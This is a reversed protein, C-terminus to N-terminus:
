EVQFDLDEDESENVDSEVEDGSSKELEENRASRSAFFPLSEHLSRAQCIYGMPTHMIEQGKRRFTLWESLFDIPNKTFISADGACNLPSSSTTEHALQLYDSLPPYETFNIYLRGAFIGVEISLWEPTKCGHPLSPLVYYSLGNFHQMSKTIPAAYAILHVMPKKATRIMPILLEVEESIVVLATENSPSWLIWEVPRLFNDNARHSDLEITRMFEVSVYLKSKTRRVDYKQGIDTRALADFIHECGCGLILNGTRVFLLIDPHLGPFTLAEYHTPKQVQRVQEIQFEVEREQEVEELVSSHIYSRTNGATRKQRDLEKMFEALKASAMDTVYSPQIDTLSGYLKELTQHELNQIEQLYADRHTNNTFIDAYKWQADTRRCFDTGQALYLNQLHQNTRCTQELLWWVVHSSDVRLSQALNAYQKACVDLISQHVEPPAFFTISQTTGLQRLRMAAQVMHDKTQGLGLTLAGHAQHPLKLDVGRTHAEDIYVLCDELNEAYPTALLPVADKGRRYQVWARNDNGFYVAAKPKPDIKLWKEVLTKNDMELIYAGADILVKIGSYTIRELLEEEKLRRGNWSALNYQRNRSQLIYILVEANTQCLSPLDDQKISLPLMMKNDNTGSFGTTKACWTTEEPLPKPFLPIDWGSAQLKLSFQKAHNPFVFTNMYHDLVNRNLRLHRWLENLQGRDEINIVNWHSLSEPLSHSSSIWRDYEAAPDDSKLVHELSQQFQSLNLGTYYFALCTFLISVDPHGFEAQESPVGKADFPVAIPDRNPHLGYQVNWRKKLCLLLIRNLLLGRVLLINKRASSRDKFLASLKEILEDDIDHDSLVQRILIKGVAISSDTLRLFPIRGNCIDNIIRHHLADEVDERLLHLIPFGATRETVEISQPFDRQLCPFHDEVLSLLYQAVEWRNPHGDVSIQAGSPYILQTKVALTFDSEDLIDRCTSILWSQFKIMDRAEDFRHDALRQLGSLKYSLIHEPTTLIVGSLHLMDYHHTSYLQLMDLNTSTRRSFPVYRVERGVLSGLRSQITQATQLLLAKPVVLRSLQKKDALIAIAMPVICSTKGQGMNMQLVSNSRSEPSMIAHAVDIQERRILIDSDIELLLWDPFQSPSWNEHGYEQSEQHLKQRDDKLQAHIIRLLRQLSTILVGYTIINERMHSGFHSDSSSRLQELITIPTVCPWLSGLRLWRYRIDGASLANQIRELVENLIVRYNKIYKKTINMAPQNWQLQPLENTNKLAILSKKLDNGYQKRLLDSSNAFSDLIRDLEFIEKCLATKGATGNWNNPPCVSRSKDPLHCMPILAPKALLDSLSPIVVGHSTISLPTSKKGWVHPASTIKKAKYRDLIEQAQTVYESLRMNQILRQWEPHVKKIVRKIDLFKSEFGEASLVESPWQELLFLALRKGEVKCLAAHREHFCDKELDTMSAVPEIVPYDDAIFRSLMELTPSSHPEFRTFYPSNPPQLAKLENLCGFAALSQIADMDPKTGFSLLSLRFLLTYPEQPDNQRCFNTLSGWQEGIDNEILDSLCSSVNQSDSNTIHFGGILKWKKLIDALQRTLYVRFPQKHFLRAIQYVNTAQHLNTHQDRSNYVMDETTSTALYSSSREYRLRQIEGRKRLQLPCDTQFNIPMGLDATFYRLQNSKSLIEQVLGEFSDHQINATLHQDWIVKQLHRKDKPYYERIPSLRGIVRLISALSDNLPQWPQCYGSRLTYLAEETGTRGTLPDPLAFSTFAHFQAKSYFLRPESPCTLRGLVSDIEFRGYETTSAVQVEVHMGRRRYTLQGLPIIISRREHNVNDRLVIKSLLGYLTGADQDPDIEAHLERCELLNKPNVFFSLELHRMEVSLSGLKPQFVTLRRPDEFHRFVEAVRKFLDSHPDVLNVRKRQARFNSVNLSWDTPRTVWISPKRRIELRRERFNLWHVCNEILSSPLDFNDGSIFIRRPVYELVNGNKIARIVVNNERHGLHVEDKELSAPIVHSMGVLNSPYTLLHQDGFLEKVDESERIDLPLRGLPKGDFLLHGEVFNFHVRQPAIFKNSTSTIVASAWRDNLFSPFQWTSYTRGLDDGSSSWAKDIAAGLSGPHSEISVRILNQIDHAMRSDRVLMKKLIRPLKMIKVTLNEQLAITGQVFSSLDEKNLKSDSGTFISFTRRCLLAAWFGYKAATEAIKADNTNRIEKRLHCIWKLTSKRANELLREASQRDQGSTLEFIRLSLTILMEMCYVERWNTAINHLRNEIQEILRQCFSSDRFVVHCDRLVDAQNKSPGVQIALHNFILMTDEASFNLNSAGLEVLMTLWRLTKVSLLKQYSMFEHVSIDSPCKSQSAIIEYSSPGDFSPNPHVPSEIISARLSRPVHIGCLHQLTLQKDLDKLWIGSKSDYYSFSLGLPLIIDSLKVKMKLARFHTQLFSKKESALSVGDPSPKMFYQLQSYDKLLMAPPSSNSPKSPYGLDSMIRFTANRYVALFKPIELELVVAAKPTSGKPLFDEHISIRMRKRCRRHWCKKCGKVNLSGDDNRTCVCITSTIKQSLDEYKECINEWEREKKTRAKLSEEDIKQQLRSLPISQKVFQAAFCDESFESFITKHAFRCDNLRSHLYRQVDQLRKMSSLTHLQLVDLLAPNFVPAYQCLLPCARLACRDMQVWNEFLNLIFISMQEPDSDYADGVKILMECILNASQICRNKFDGGPDYLSTKEQETNKELRVLSFYRDTFDTFDRISSDDLLSINVSTSKRQQNSELALLNCLYGRSNPLLLNLAKKDAHTPLLPISRTIITKFDAWASEIKDTTDKITRKLMTDISDFFHKHVTSDRYVRAKDMELKALRRCLKARLIVIMEPSLQSASQELLQALVICILFKYCIQGYKDGLELCLQRQIAVRLVLWFPLRRWPFESNHFNVDDRVRKRLRPVEVSSGIAELLPMLMQVILAPDTTGRAEIVYVEAKNSRAVFRSLSEASAQELFSALSDQFSKKLFEDLPIRVARGPFDWQLTNETALVHKSSPSAEFVEFIVTDKDDHVHRRVLLAANQEVVYLILLVNRQLSCFEQLMSAKDLGNRNVNLCIQLSISVSNWTEGFPQDTFNCMTGCARTLRLLIDQEISELDVDQHEPLKPPLVLHNFVSELLEM